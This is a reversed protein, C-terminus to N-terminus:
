GSKFTNWYFHPVDPVTPFTTLRQDFLGKNYNYKTSRNKDVHHKIELVITLTWQLVSKIIGCLFTHM